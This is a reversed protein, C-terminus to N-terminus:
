GDSIWCFTAASSKFESRFNVDCTNCGNTQPLMGKGSKRYCPIGQPLLVCRGTGLHLKKKILSMMVIFLTNRGM